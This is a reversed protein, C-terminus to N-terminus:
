YHSPCRPCCKLSLIHSPSSAGQHWARWPGLSVWPVRPRTLLWCRRGGMRCAIRRPKGQM